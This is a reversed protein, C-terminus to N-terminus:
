DLKYKECIENRIEQYDETPLNPFLSDVIWQRTQGCQAGVVQLQKVAKFVESPIASKIEDFVAQWHQRKVLDLTINQRQLCAEQRKLSREVGEVLESIEARQKVAQEYAVRAQKLKSESKEDGNLAYSDIAAQKMKEANEIQQTLEPLSAELTAHKNQLGAITRQFDKVAKKIEEFEKRATEIDSM